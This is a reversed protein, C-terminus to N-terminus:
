KKVRSVLFADGSFLRVTSSNQNFQAVCVDGGGGLNQFSEHCDQSDNVGGCAEGEVELDGGYYIYMSARQNSWDHYCVIRTSPPVFKRGQEAGSVRWNYTVSAQCTCVCTLVIRCLILDGYRFSLGGGGGGGGGGRGGWM